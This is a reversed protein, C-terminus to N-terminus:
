DCDGSPAGADSWAGILEVEDEDLDVVPPEVPLTVPPMAGSRVARAMREYIPEGQYHAQTAAYDTLPFPAGHEPPEAHCRECRSAVIPQVDCYTVAGGSSCGLLGATIGAVAAPAALCRLVTPPTM